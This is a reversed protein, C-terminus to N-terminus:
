ATKENEVLYDIGANCYRIIQRESYHLKDAIKSITMLNIYRHWLVARETDMPIAEILDSVAELIEYTAAEKKILKEELEMKKETMKQLKEPNGFGSPMDSIVATVSERASKIRELTEQIAEKERIKYGYSELFERIEQQKSMKELIM